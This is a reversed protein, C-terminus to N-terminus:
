RSDTSVGRLLLRSASRFRSPDAHLRALLLAGELSALLARAQDRPRSSAGFLGLQQGELIVRSLWAEHDDLAKVLADRVPETLSSLGAALMGCLCMRGSALTEEFLDVYRELKRRPNPAGDIDALRDQCGARFRDILALALDAKTPFYHHISAKRIRVEEAVDAFSFGDYGRTQVLREAVDLIQDRTSPPSPINIDMIVM